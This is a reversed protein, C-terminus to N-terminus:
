TKLQCFFKPYYKFYMLLLTLLDMPSNCLSWIIKSLCDSDDIHLGENPKMKVVSVNIM